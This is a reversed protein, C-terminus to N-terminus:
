DAYMMLIKPAAQCRQRENSFGKSRLVRLPRAERGDTAEAILTMDSEGAIGRRVLPHDDVTLIRIPSSERSMLRDARDKWVAEWHVLLPPRLALGCLRPRRPRDVGSRHRSGSRQPHEAKAVRKTGHRAYVTGRRGRRHIPRRPYCEQPRAKSWRPLSMPTPTSIMAMGRSAPADTGEVGLGAITAGPAVKLLFQRRNLLSSQGM